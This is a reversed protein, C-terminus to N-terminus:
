AHKTKWNISLCFDLVFISQIHRCPNIERNIENRSLLFILAFTPDYSLLHCSRANNLFCSTTNRIVLQRRLFPVCIGRSILPIVRYEGMTSTRGTWKVPFNQRTAIAATALARSSNRFRCTGSTNPLSRRCASWLERSPSHEDRLIRACKHTGRELYERSNILPASCVIQWFKIVLVRRHELIDFKARCPMMKFGNEDEKGLGNASERRSDRSESDSANSHLVPTMSISFTM